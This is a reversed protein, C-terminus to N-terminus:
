WADPYTGSPCKSANTYWTANPNAGRACKLIGASAPRPAYVDYEGPLTPYEPPNKTSKVVPCNACEGLKSSDYAWKKGQYERLKNVCAVTDCGKWLYKNRWLPDFDTPLPAPPAARANSAAIFALFDNNSFGEQKRKCWWWLGVALVIGVIVYVTTNSSSVNNRSPM